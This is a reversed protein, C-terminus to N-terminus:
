SSGTKYKINHRNSGWIAADWIDGGISYALQKCIDSSQLGWSTKSQIIGRHRTQQHVLMASDPKVHERCDKTATSLSCSMKWIQIGPLDTELINTDCCETKSLTIPTMGPTYYVKHERIPVLWSLLSPKTMNKWKEASTPTRPPEDNPTAQCRTVLMHLHIGSWM